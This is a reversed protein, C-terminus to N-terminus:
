GNLQATSCNKEERENCQLKTSWRKYFTIYFPLFQQNIRFSVEINFQQGLCIYWCSWNETMTWERAGLRDLHRMGLKAKIQLSFFCFTWSMLFLMFSAISTQFSENNVFNDYVNSWLLQKHQCHCLHLTTLGTYAGDGNVCKCSWSIDCCIEVYLYMHVCVTHNLTQSLM